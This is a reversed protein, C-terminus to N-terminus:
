KGNNFNKELQKRVDEFIPNTEPEEKAEIIMTYYKPDPLTAFVDYTHKDVKLIYNRMNWTITHEM